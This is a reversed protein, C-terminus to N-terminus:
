GSTKASDKCPNMEPLREPQSRQALRDFVADFVLVRVLDPERPGAFDDFNKSGAHFGPIM